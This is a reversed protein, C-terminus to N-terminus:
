PKGLYHVLIVVQRPTFVKDRPRYLAEDLEALLRPNRLMLNRLNAVASEDCVTDPFYMRALERKTYPRIKFDSENM